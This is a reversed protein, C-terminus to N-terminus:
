IFSQSLGVIVNKDNSSSKSLRNKSKSSVEEASKVKKESENETENMPESSAESLSKSLRRRESIMLAALKSRGRCLIFLFSILFLIM